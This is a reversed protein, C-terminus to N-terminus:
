VKKPDYWRLVVTRLCIEFNEDYNIKKNRDLHGVRKSGALDKFIPKGMASKALELKIQALYPEARAQKNICIYM